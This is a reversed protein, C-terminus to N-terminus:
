SLCSNGSSKRPWDVDPLFPVTLSGVPACCIVYTASLSRWMLCSATSMWKPWLKTMLPGLRVMVGAASMTYTPWWDSLSALASRTSGCCASHASFPTTASVVVASLVPNSALNRSSMMALVLSQFCSIKKMNFCLRNSQLGAKQAKLKSICEQQTDMILVLDDVYLLEWPVDTCFDPSLVELVLVFLLPSLVSGQHVGVGM